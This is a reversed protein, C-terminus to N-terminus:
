LQWNVRMRKALCVAPNGIREIEAALNAVLENRLRNGNMRIAGGPTRDIPKGDILREDSM